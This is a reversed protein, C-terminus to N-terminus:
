SANLILGAAGLFLAAALAGSGWLLYSLSQEAHRYDPHDVTRRYFFLGVILDVAFFLGSLVPLLLLRVPPVPEGPGKTPTFRLFVTNQLPVALSVWILMVLNILLGSLLLNRALPDAWLRSVIFTPYTSHPPLPSLSGLESIRQYTNLFEVPSAPSIAFWRQPTAIIILRRVDSAMYELTTGDALRRVGVLAGPWRLWPRPLRGDLQSERSVWLVKDMPIVETRLGWHLYIGNRELGYSGVYLSYLRYGLLPVSAAAFFAPALVMLFAPGVEAEAAQWLGWLGSLVLLVILTVQFVLGLRRAPLYPYIPSV